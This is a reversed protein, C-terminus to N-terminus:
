ICDFTANYRFNNFEFNAIDALNKSLGAIM